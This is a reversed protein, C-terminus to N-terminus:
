ELTYEDVWFTENDYAEKEQANKEKEAKEITSYIGVISEDGEWKDGCYCMLVYVKM